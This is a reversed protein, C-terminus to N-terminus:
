VNLFDSSDDIDSREPKDHSSRRRLRHLQNARNFHVGFGRLNETPNSELSTQHRATAVEIAAVKENETVYINFIISIKIRIM